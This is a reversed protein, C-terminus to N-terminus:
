RRRPSGTPTLPLFAGVWRHPVLSTLLSLIFVALAIYAATDDARGLQLLYTAMPQVEAVMGALRTLGLETSLFMPFASNDSMALLVSHVAALAVLYRLPEWSGFPQRDDDEELPLALYAGFAALFLTPVPLTDVIVQFQLESHWINTFLMPFPGTALFWVAVALDWLPNLKLYHVRAITCVFLIGGALWFGGPKLTDSLFTVLPGCSSASKECGSGQVIAWSVYDFYVAFFLFGAIGVMGWWLYRGAFM